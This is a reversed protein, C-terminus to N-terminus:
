TDLYNLVKQYKIDEIAGAIHNCRDCLLGRVKKTTHCHDVVLRKDTCACAACSHDQNILLQEYQERELGYRHRM